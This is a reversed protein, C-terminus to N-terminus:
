VSMEPSLALLSESSLLRHGGDSAHACAAHYTPAGGRGRRRRRRGRVCHSLRRRRATTGHTAAPMDSAAAGLRAQTQLYVSERACVCV